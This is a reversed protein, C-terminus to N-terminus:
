ILFEQPENGVSHAHNPHDGTCYVGFYATMSPVLMEVRKLKGPRKCGEKGRVRMYISVSGCSVSPLFLAGFLFFFLPFLTFYFYLM